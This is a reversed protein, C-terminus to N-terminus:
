SSSPVLRQLQTVLQPLITPKSVVVTGAFRESLNEFAVRGTHFLIPVGRDLLSHALPLSNQGGGLDIDLIAADIPIQEILQLGKEVCAVPGVIEYGEAELGMEIELAILAEDEVILINQPRTMILTHPLRGLPQM